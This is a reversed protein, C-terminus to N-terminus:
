MKYAATCPLSFSLSKQYVFYTITILSLPKEFINIKYTGAVRSFRAERGFVRLAKHRFVRPRLAKTEQAGKSLNNRM